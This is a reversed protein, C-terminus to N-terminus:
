FKSPLLPKVILPISADSKSPVAMLAPSILPSPTSSKATLATPPPLITLLLLPKGSLLRWPSTYTKNPSRLPKSDRMLKNLRLPLLPKIISPLSLLSLKPLANLLAPSILPSPILSRIIPAGLAPSTRSLGKALPSLSWLPSTYTKNPRRLPKLERNEIPSRRSPFLPKTMLPM